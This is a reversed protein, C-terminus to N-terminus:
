RYAISTLELSSKEGFSNRYAFKVMVMKGSPVATWWESGSQKGSFSGGSSDTGRFRGSFDVRYAEFEGGPVRVKELAKVEREEDVKAKFTSGAVLFSVKWTKGKELPLDLPQFEPEFTCAQGNALCTKRTWGFPSLAGKGEVTSTGFRQVFDFGNAGVATIEEKFDLSKGNLQWKYELRDGVDFPIDAAAARDVAVVLGALAVLMGVAISRLSPNTRANM